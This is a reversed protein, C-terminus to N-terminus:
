RSPRLGRVKTMLRMIMFTHNHSEEEAHPGSPAMRAEPLLSLPLRPPIQPGCPAARPAKGPREETIWSGAILNILVTWPFVRSLSLLMREMRHRQPAAPLRPIM